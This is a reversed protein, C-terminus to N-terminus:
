VSPTPAPQSRELSHVYNRATKYMTGARREDQPEMVNEWYSVAERAAELAGKPDTRALDTVIEGWKKAAVPGLWYEPFRGFIFSKGGASDNAIKQLQNLAERPDTKALEAALDVFMQAAADSLGKSNGSFTESERFAREMAEEIDTKALEQLLGRWQACGDQAAEDLKNAAEKAIGLATRIDGTAATSDALALLKSLATARVLGHMHDVNTVTLHAEFPDQQAVTEYMRSWEAAAEQERENTAHPDEPTAPSLIRAEQAKAQMAVRPNTNELQAALDRLTAAVKDPQGSFRAIHPAYHIIRDIKKEALTKDFLAIAKTSAAQNFVSNELFRSDTECVLSLATGTDKEAIRDIRDNWKKLADQGQATAPGAVNAATLLLALVTGPTFLYDENAVRLRQEWTPPPATDATDIIKQVLALKAPSEEGAYQLAYLHHELYSPYFSDKLNADYDRSFREILKEQYDSGKPAYFIASYTAYVASSGPAGKAEPLTQLKDLARFVFDPIQPDNGHGHTLNNLSHFAETTNGADLHHTIKQELRDRQIAKVFDVLASIPRPLHM